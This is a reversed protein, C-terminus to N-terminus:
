FLAEQMLRTQKWSEDWKTIVFEAPMHRLDYAQFYTGDGNPMEAIFTPKGESIREQRWARWVDLDGIFWRQLSQPGHPGVFGYFMFTGEGATAKDIETRGGYRARSRITFENGYRKLYCYERVRCAIPISAAFGIRLDTNHHLDDDLSADVLSTVMTKTLARRQIHDTVSNIAAKVAPMAADSLGATLNQVSM